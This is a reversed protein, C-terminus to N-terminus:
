TDVTDPFPAGPVQKMFLDIVQKVTFNEPKKVLDASHSVLPSSLVMGAGVATAANYIFKRRSQNGPGLSLNNESIM